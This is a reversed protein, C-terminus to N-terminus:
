YCLIHTQLQTCPNFVQFRFFSVTILSSKLPDIFRGFCSNVVKSFGSEWHVDTSLRARICKIKKEESIGRSNYKGPCMEIFKYYLKIELNNSLFFFHIDLLAKTMWNRFKKTDQQRTDPPILFTNKKEKRMQLKWQPWYSNQNIENCLFRNSRKPSNQQSPGSLEKISRQRHTCDLARKVWALLDRSRYIGVYQM